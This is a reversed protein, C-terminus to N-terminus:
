RAGESGLPEDVRRLWIERWYPYISRPCFLYYQGSCVVGDLIVCDGRLTIMKGTREDIIREVRRLVRARQGCYRLMERDFGLGRNRNATDLTRVIEDRTKVEVLEGPQLNLPEVPTKTLRGEIFPFNRGGHILMLRPLLRRNAGQFKNFLFIPIRTLGERLTVNGSAFDRVYPRIDLRAIRSTARVLETAQCSYTLEGTEGTASRVVTADRIDSPTVGTIARSRVVSSTVDSRRLTDSSEPTRKLWAEKWFILCGAQCGGHAAGDCRLNTLHVTNRMRRFGTWGVTDCTKDARKFVVFQQGCFRRMEPMFPLGDLKGEADLTGLIEDVSRVQVWEGPRLNLVALPHPSSTV